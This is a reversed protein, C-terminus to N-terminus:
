EEEKTWDEVTESLEELLRTNADELKANEYLCRENERILTEPSDETFYTITLCIAFGMLIGLLMTGTKDM